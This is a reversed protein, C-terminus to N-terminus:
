TAPSGPDTSRLGSLEFLSRLAAKGQEAQIQSRTEVDYEGDGPSSSAIGRAM